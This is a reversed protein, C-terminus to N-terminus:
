LFWHLFSPENTRFEYKFLASHVKRKSLLQKNGRINPDGRTGSNMILKM